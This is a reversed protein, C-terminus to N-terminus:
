PALRKRGSARYSQKHYSNSQRKRLQNLLLRYFIFNQCQFQGLLSTFVPHKMVLVPNKNLSGLEFIFIYVQKV